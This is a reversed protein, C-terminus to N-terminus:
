FEVRLEISIQILWVVELKMTLSKSPANVALLVSNESDEFKSSIWNRDPNASFLM